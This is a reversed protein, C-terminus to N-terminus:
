RKNSINASATLHTQTQSNRHKKIYKTFNNNESNVRVMFLRIFLTNKRNTTQNSIHRWLCLSIAETKRKRINGVSQRKNKLLIIYKIVHTKM